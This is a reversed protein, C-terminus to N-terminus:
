PAATARWLSGAKLRRGGDNHNDIASVRSLEHGHRFVLQLGHEPEWDVNAGLSVYVADDRERRVMVSHFAVHNWVDAASAIAVEHEPNVFTGISQEYNRYVRPAADDLQARTLQLFAEIASGFAPDLAGDVMAGELTVDVERGGLCPIAVPESIWWDDFQEDQELEGLGRIYM